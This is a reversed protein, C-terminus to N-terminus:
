NLMKKSSKLVLANSICVDILFYFVRKWWKKNRNKYTHFSSSQNVRDISRSFTNYEYLIEPKGKSNVQDDHISSIFNLKKKDEIKFITVDEDVKIQLEDSRLISNNNKLISTAFINKARLKQIIATSSYWSDFFLIHGRNDLGEVLKLIISHIFSNDDLCILNKDTRGPDFIIDYVYNNEADCLLHLKFGWKHPKHPLYFKLKNRGRFYLLSEDICIKQSLNYVKKFNACTNM